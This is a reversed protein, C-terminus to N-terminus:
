LVWLVLAGAGATWVAALTLLVAAAFRVDEPPEEGDVLLPDYEDRWPAESVAPEVAVVPDGASITMHQARAHATAGTLPADTTRM